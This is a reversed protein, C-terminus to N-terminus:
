QKNKRRSKFPYYRSYIFSFHLYISLFFFSYFKVFGKTAGNHHPEYHDGHHLQILGYNVVSHFGPFHPKPPHPPPLLNPIILPSHHPHPIKPPTLPFHNFYEGPPIPNYLAPSIAFSSPHPPYAPQKNSDLSFSNLFPDPSSPRIPDPVYYAESLSDLETEKKRVPQKEIKTDQM